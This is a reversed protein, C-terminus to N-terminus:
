TRGAPRTVGCGRLYEVGLGDRHLGLLYDPAIELIETEEPLSVWGASGSSRQDERRM